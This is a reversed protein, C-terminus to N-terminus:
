PGYLCLLFSFWRKTNRVSSVAQRQQSPMKTDSNVSAAPRWKVPLYSRKAFASVAITNRCVSRNATLVTQAFRYVLCSTTGFVRLLFSCRTIKHNSDNSLIYVANTTLQIYAEVHDECELHMKLGFINRFLHHITRFPGVETLSRSRLKDHSQYLM